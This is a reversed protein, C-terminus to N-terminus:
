YEAAEVQNSSGAPRCTAMSHGLDVSCVLEAFYM